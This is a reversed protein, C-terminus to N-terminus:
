ILWLVIIIFSYIFKGKSCAWRSSTRWCNTRSQVQKCSSWSQFLCFKLKKFFYLLFYAYFTNKLNINFYISVLYCVHLSFYFLIIIIIWFFGKELNNHVFHKLLIINICYQHLVITYVYLMFVIIQNLFFFTNIYFINKICIVYLINM